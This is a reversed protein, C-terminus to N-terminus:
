LGTVTLTRKAFRATGGQAQFQARFTNLGANVNVFASSGLTIRQGATASEVSVMRNTSSAITTAGDVRFSMQCEAGALDNSLRGAWTVLALSPFPFDVSVETSADGGWTALTRTDEQDTFVSGRVSLEQYTVWVSGNFVQLAQDAIVYCPEGTDPTPSAADRATTDAYRSIVRGIVPNGFTTSDVVEGPAVAPLEPM